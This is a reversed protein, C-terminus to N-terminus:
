ILIMPIYNSEHYLTITTARQSDLRCISSPFLDADCRERRARSAFGTVGVSECPGAVIRIPDLASAERSRGRSGPCRCCRSFRRRRGRRRYRGDGRCGNARRNVGDSGGSLRRSVRTVTGRQSCDCRGSADGTSRCLHAGVFRISIVDIGITRASALEEDAGVTM